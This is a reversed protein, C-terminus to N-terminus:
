KNRRQYRETDVGIKRLLHWFWRSISHRWKELDSSSVPRPRIVDKPVTQGYNSRGDGLHRVGGDLLWAMDRGKLKYYQSIAGEGGIGAYGMDLANYDELRKLGPNFTFTHWLYHIEPYVRKFVADGIRTDPLSRIYRPMDADDRASVMLIKPFNSLIDISRAIVGHQSFSWDDEIHFIYESKITAYAYDISLIQGKNKGNLIIRFPMGPFIDSIDYVSSDDSDEIIVIESIPYENHLLFSKLTERLLDIRRCSTVVVSVSSM